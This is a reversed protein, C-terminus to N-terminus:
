LVLTIINLLAYVKVQSVCTYHLGLAKRSIKNSLTVLMSTKMDSYVISFHVIFTQLFGISKIRQGFLIYKLSLEIKM